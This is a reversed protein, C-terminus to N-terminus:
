AASFEDAALERLNLEDGRIVAAFLPALYSDCFLRYFLAVDLDRLLRHVASCAKHTFFYKM